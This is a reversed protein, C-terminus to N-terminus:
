QWNHSRGGCYGGGNPYNACHYWTGDHEHLGLVDCGEATCVGYNNWNIGSQNCYWSGDHEHPGYVECGDATCLAYMPAASGNSRGGGHHGGGHGGRAFASVPLMVALLAGVTLYLVIKKM